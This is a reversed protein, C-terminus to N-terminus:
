CCYLVGIVVLIVVAPVGVIASGGGVAPVGPVTSDSSVSPVASLLRALLPLFQCCRCFNEAVAAVGSVTSVDVSFSVNDIGFTESFKV